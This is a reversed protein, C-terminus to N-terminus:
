ATSSRRKCAHSFLVAFFAHMFSAATCPEAVFVGAPPSALTGFNVRWAVLDAANGQNPSDGRQWVLFDNGDVDGDHDFDGQVDQVGALFASLVVHNPDPNGPGYNVVFSGRGNSTMLRQGNAVNAFSGTIGMGTTIIEFKAESSPLVGDLSLQLNGGDLAVHGDVQIQGFRDNLDFHDLSVKTTSGPLLTLNGSTHCTFLKSQLEGIALMGGNPIALDDQCDLFALTGSTWFFSGQDLLPLSHVFLVGGDLHVADNRGLLLAGGVEVAGRNEIRLTGPGVPTLLDLNFFTRLLSGNGTVTVEGSGGFVGGLAVEFAVVTGGGYIKLAAKGSIGVFVDPGGDVRGGAGITLVGSGESALAIDLNSKFPMELTGNTVTLNGSRNRVTGLM